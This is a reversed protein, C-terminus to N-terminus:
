GEAKRRGKKRQKHLLRARVRSTGKKKEIIIATGVVSRLDTRTIADTINDIHETIIKDRKKGVHKARAVIKKKNSLKM